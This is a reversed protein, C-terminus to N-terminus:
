PTLMTRYTCIPRLDLRGSNKTRRPVKEKNITIPEIKKILELKYLFDQWMNMVNTLVEFVIRETGNKLKVFIEKEIHQYEGKRDKYTTSIVEETLDDASHILSNRRQTLIKHKSANVIDGLLEYDPCLQVISSFSQKKNNPLHERLHYLASGAILAFRLDSSKEVIKRRKAKAYNRYSDMVNEHFYAEFDDFM